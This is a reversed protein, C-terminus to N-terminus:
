TTNMETDTRLIIQFLLLGALNNYYIKALKTYSRFISVVGYRRTRAALAGLM